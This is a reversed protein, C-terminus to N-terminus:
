EAPPSWGDIGALMDADNWAATEAETLRYAWSVRAGDAGPGSSNYEGYLSTSESEPKNWNHWGEPRIHGDMWCNVFVTKAHNRWPRGLYVSHIPADGTLRCSLFVYGYPAGEPTSAATIYGCSEEALRRRSFIECNRFVAAASGFIFDVDGEIYCREYYQRVQRRPEEDRPGGFRNAALPRSPLPGTFLTDQYGIFRCNRFMIRDGDVYAALAQGVLEGRGASNRFTLNEARIGEAGLLVTYSNFTGYETGDPFTKRAYDDYTIVTDEASEGILRVFPKVIHLKEYYVGPKIRIVTEEQKGEPIRDLAEQISTYEGTGDEAVIMKRKDEREQQEKHKGQLVPKLNKKM